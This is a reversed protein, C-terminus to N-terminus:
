ALSIKGPPDLQKIPKVFRRVNQAFDQQFRVHNDSTSCDRQRAQCAARVAPSFFVSFIQEMQVGAPRM